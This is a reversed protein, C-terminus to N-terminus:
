FKEVAPIVQEAMLDLPRLSGVDALAGQAVTIGLESLEHLQEITQQVNEGNPGLNFRVQATKEIEAYDRGEAACHERLVDLKRALDPSRM